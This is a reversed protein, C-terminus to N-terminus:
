RDEGKNLAGVWEGDKGRHLRGKDCCRHGSDAVGAKAPSVWSRRSGTRIAVGAGIGPVELVAAQAPKM